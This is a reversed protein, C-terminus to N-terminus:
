DYVNWVMISHDLGTSIVQKGDPSWALSSIYASHGKGHSVEKAMRYDWLKVILDSGATAIYQDNTSIGLTNVEEQLPINRVPEAQRLDWYTLTKQAGATIVTTQDSALALCNLGGHRERHATLRREQRLDWTLLSRDRSVSAAFQDNAFLQVGTIAATHEGSLNSILDRTRLEWVRLDGEEGGSILFRSNQKALELCLVSKKHANDIRWLLGGNMDFSRIKGDDYGALSIDLSGSCSVPTSTSAGKERCQLKVNYNNGDWITLPGDASCTIFFDSVGHPFKIDRVEGAPSQNVVTYVLDKTKVRAVTGTGTVALMESCDSSLSLTDVAGDFRVQERDHITTVDTGRYVTVTGDGGGTIFCHAGDHSPLSVLSRVSNRACNPIYQQIVLNKMLVIVVDGSTTGSYLFEYDSSFAVSAFDRQQKGAAAVQNGTMEATQTDLSWIQIKKAGCAALQYQPMYRRKINKVFCGHIMDMTPKPFLVAWAILLGKETDYVLVRGDAEVGTSVLYLSDHTFCLTAVGFDHEQFRFKLSTSAMDWLIVDANHGGQGSAAFKGSFFVCICKVNKKNSSFYVCGRM